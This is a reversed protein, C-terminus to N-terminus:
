DEIKFDVLSALTPFLAIMQDPSFKAGRLDGLGFKIAGVASTRFDLEKAITKYFETQELTCHEFKSRRFAASYFDAEQLDCDVFATNYIKSFRFQSLNLKCGIFSCHELISDTLQLGTLRCKKFTVDFLSSDPMEINSFDCDEFKVRRLYLKKGSIGNLTTSHFTSDLISVGDLSTAHVPKEKTIRLEQYSEGPKLEM